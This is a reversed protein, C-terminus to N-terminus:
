ADGCADGCTIEGTPMDSRYLTRAMQWAAAPEGDFVRAAVGEALQWRRRDDETVVFPPFVPGIV